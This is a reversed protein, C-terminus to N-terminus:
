CVFAVVGPGGPAGDSECGAPRVSVCGCVCEEAQCPLRFHCKRSGAVASM